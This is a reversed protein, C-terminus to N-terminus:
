KVGRQMQKYGIAPLVTTHAWADLKGFSAPGLTTRLQAIHSGIQATNATILANM